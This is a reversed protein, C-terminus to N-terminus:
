FKSTKKSKKITSKLNSRKRTSDDKIFNSPGIAQIAQDKASQAMLVNLTQSVPLYDSPQTTAASFTCGIGSFESPILLPISSGVLSVFSLQGIPCSLVVEVEVARGTYSYVIVNYTEGGVSPNPLPYSIYLQNLVNVYSVSSPGYFLEGSFATMRCNGIATSNMSTTTKQNIQVNFLYASGQCDIILQATDSSSGYLATIYISFEQNVVLTSGNTPSEIFLQRNVLATMQSSTEYGPIPDVGIYCLGYYETDAPITVWGPAVADVTFSGVNCTVTITINVETQPQSTGVYIDFSQGANVEVPANPFYIITDNIVELVMMGPVIYTPDLVSVATLNCFGSVEGPTTITYIPNRDNTVVVTENTWAGDCLLSVNAVASLDQDRVLFLTFNFNWGANIYGNSYTIIGFANSDICVEIAAETINGSALSSNASVILDYVGAAEFGDFQFPNAPTFVNSAPDNYGSCSNLLQSGDNDFTMNFAYSGDSTDCPSAYFQNSMDLHYLSATMASLPESYGSFNAVKISSVPGSASNTFSFTANQTSNFTQSNLSSINYCYSKYNQIEVTNIVTYNEASATFICTSTFPPAQFIAYGSINVNDYNYLNGNCTMTVLVIPYSGDSAVLSLLIEQFAYYVTGNAPSTFQITQDAYASKLLPNDSHWTAVENADKKVPIFRAKFSKQGIIRKISKTHSAKTFFAEATFFFSFFLVVLSLANM